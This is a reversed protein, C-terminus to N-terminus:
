IIEKLINKFKEPIDSLYEIIEKRDKKFWEESAHQVNSNTILHLGLIKAEITLRPCTDHIIPLFVLGKYGSMKDLFVNYDKEDLIDFELKNEMCYKKAEFFGKAESHWGDNGKIICYKGNNKRNKSLKDLRYLTEKTFCSGLVFQKNNVPLDKLMQNHIRMQENSMYFLGLSNSMINFYLQQLPPSGFKESFPEWKEMGTFKQYAQLCRYKCFGYDFEIKVFRKTLLVNNIANINSENIGFINGFIFLTDSLPYKDM